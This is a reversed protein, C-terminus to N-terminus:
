NREIQKSDRVTVWDDNMLEDDSRLQHYVTDLLGVPVNHSFLNGLSFMKFCVVCHQRETQPRIKVQECTALPTEIRERRRREKNPFFHMKWRILWLFHSGFGERSTIKLPITKLRGYSLLCLNTTQKLQLNSQKSSRVLAASTKNVNSHECLFLTYPPFSIDSKISKTTPLTPEPIILAAIMLPLATVDTQSIVVVFLNRCVVFVTTEEESMM